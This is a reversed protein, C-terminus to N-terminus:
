REDGGIVTYDIEKMAAGAMHYYEVIQDPVDDPWCGHQEYHMVADHFLRPFNEIVYQEERQEQQQRLRDFHRLLMKLKYAIFNM